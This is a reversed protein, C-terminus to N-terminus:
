GAATYAQGKIQAVIEVFQSKHFLIDAKLSRAAPKQRQCKKQSVMSARGVPQKEYTSLTLFSRSNKSRKKVLDHWNKM